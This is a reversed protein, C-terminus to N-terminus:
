RPRLLVYMAGGGGDVPRASTYAVVYRSMRKLSLWHQIKNKLVPVKNRSNKGKGHIIRVCTFQKRSCEQLFKETRDLAEDQFLGHLDLEAQISFGGERLKKLLMQNWRQSGGEVYDGNDIWAGDEGEALAEKLLDIPFLTAGEVGSRSRRPRDMRESLPTVESMARRFLEEDGLDEDWQLPPPNLKDRLINDKVGSVEKKGM